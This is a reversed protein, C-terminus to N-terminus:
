IIGYFHLKTLLKNRNESINKLKESFNGNWAIKSLGEVSGAFQKSQTQTANHYTGLKLDKMKGALNSINGLVKARSEEEKAKEKWYDARKAERKKVRAIEKAAADEAKARALDIESERDAEENLQEKIEKGFVEMAEATDSDEPLAFKVKGGIKETAGGGLDGNRYAGSDGAGEGRVSRQGIQSRYKQYDAWDQRTYEYVLGDEWLANGVFSGARANPYNKERAYIYKRVKEMDTESFLSVRIVRTIEPFNKSGKVFAFVNDVGLTTHPKDNIEVIAEGSASQKFRRLTGKEQIKSYLDDLEKVSIAEAERAWGFNNYEEETYIDVSDDMDPLAFRKKSSIESSKESNRNVKEASDPISDKSSKAHDYTPTAKELSKLRLIFHAPDESNKNHVIEGGFITNQLYNSKADTVTVVLNYKKSETTGEQITTQFAELEISAFVARKGKVVIKTVAALRGNKQKVIYLPDELAHPLAKMIDTGLGHYNGQLDGDKKMALYAIDWSMVIERNSAGAKEIYIPPTHDLVRLHTNQTTDLTDNDLQDIADDYSLAYRAEPAEGHPTKKETDSVAATPMREAAINQANQQAFKDFLRKYKFFLRRAAASRQADTDGKAGRLFDLIRDKVTPADDLLRELTEANGLIGEAYHANYEDLLEIEDTRGVEAYRDSIAKKEEASLNKVNRRALRMGKEGGYIAHALEHILLKDASRKGDPNVCIENTSPDYFGDAYVLEKTGKRRGILTKGQDFTVRVGTRASIKAYLLVDGDSMGLARGERIMARIAAQNPASLKDYDKINERAYTDLDANAESVEAQVGQLGEQKGLNGETNRESVAFQLKSDEPHQIPLRQMEAKEATHTRSRSEGPNDRSINGQTGRRDTAQTEAAQQENAVETLYITPTGDRDYEIRDTLFLSERAFLVENEFNNGHGNMDRGNISQIIHRVVYEGHLPYGDDKTSTSTYAECMIREGVIHSKVYADRAAKDGFGDFLIIRYVEGKYTPLKELARDLNDVIGQEYENLEAGDRLKANLSYSGGSKYALLSGEENATFGNNTVQANRNYQKEDSLALRKEATQATNEIIEAGTETSIINSEELAYRGRTADLAAAKPSIKGQRVERFIKNVEQSTLPRSIRESQYDYVHYEAGEKFVAMNVGGDESTYRYVGDTMNKRLVHPMTKATDAATEVAKKVRMSQKKLSFLRTPRLLRECPKKM